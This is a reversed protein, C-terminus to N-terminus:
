WLKIIGYKKNNEIEFLGEESNKSNIPSLIKIGYQQMCKERKGFPALIKGSKDFYMTGEDNKMYGIEEDVDGYKYDGLPIIIKGDCNIVGMKNDKEVIAIGHSHAVKIDDYEAETVEKGNKGLIGYKGNKSYILVGYSYSLNEYKGLPVILTGNKNVIGTKRNSKVIAIDKNLVNFYEYKGIPIFVKGNENLVGKKGNSKVEIYQQREDWDCNSIFYGSYMGIPAIMVGKSNLLGQKGNKKVTIYDGWVTVDDYIIPVIVEGKSNFVGQKGNKNAKVLKYCPYVDVYKYELPIIMKGKSLVGYKNDKRVQLADWFEARNRECKRTNDSYTRSYTYDYIDILTGDKRYVAAKWTNDKGKIVREKKFFNDYIEEKTGHVMVGGKLINFSDYINVPHLLVGEKNYVGYKQYTWTNEIGDTVEKKEYNSSVSILYVSDEGQEGAYVDDYLPVIVKKGDHSVVAKKGKTTVVFLGEAGLEVRDYYPELIIDEYNKTEDQANMKQVVGVMLLVATLFMIKKM